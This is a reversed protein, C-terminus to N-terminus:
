GRWIAFESRPAGATTMFHAMRTAQAPPNRAHGARRRRWILHAPLSVQAVRDRANSPISCCRFSGSISLVIAADVMTAGADAAVASLAKAEESLLDMAEIKQRLRSGYRQVSDHAIQYGQGHLWESLDQYGGFANEVIRRELEDRVEDPLVAVKSRLPM